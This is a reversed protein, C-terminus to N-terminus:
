SQQIWDRIMPNVQEPVEDQPCHGVGELAVFDKVAAFESLARGLEIPEWPDATGWAIYVPCVIQPLLDEPLPGTFNNIFAWFVDAAGPTQSHKILLDVLEDSVTDPNGYATQLIKKMTKPTALKEFLWYVVPKYAVVKKLLPRGIRRMPPQTHLKRDHIQRLACDLLILGKVQQPLLVATQLAVVCGISNGVLFADEKVVTQLFDALQHGWTEFTYPVESHSIEASPTPKDSQGFGILDIAYVRHDIALDSINKRWHDSSAGFGHTLVVAPGTSGAIQYRINFTKWKWILNEVLDQAPEEISKEENSKFTEKSVTQSTM